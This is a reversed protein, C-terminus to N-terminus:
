KGRNKHDDVKKTQQKQNYKWKVDEVIVQNYRIDDYDMKNTEAFESDELKQLKEKEKMYLEKDVDDDKTRDDQYKQEKKVTKLVKAKKNHFKLNSEELLNKYIITEKFPIIPDSIKLKCQTM